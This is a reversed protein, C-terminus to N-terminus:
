TVAPFFIYHDRKYLLENDRGLPIHSRLKSAMIQSRAIAIIPKIRVISQIGDRAIGGRKVIEDDGLSWAVKNQAYYRIADAPKIWNFPNGAIDLVLVSDM